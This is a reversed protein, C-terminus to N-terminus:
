QPGGSKWVIYESAPKYFGPDDVCFKEIWMPGSYGVKPVHDKAAELTSFAALACNEGTVGTCMVVFVDPKSQRIGM